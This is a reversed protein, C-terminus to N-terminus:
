RRMRSDLPHNGVIKWEGTVDKARKGPGPDSGPEAALPTLEAVYRARPKRGKYQMWDELLRFRRRQEPVFVRDGKQLVLEHAGTWGFWPYCATHAPIWHGQGKTDQLYFEAWNHNPVWVLRAPIGVSRCLAVFVAAMEECDGRRDRLAAAVSTYSGMLPRIHQPVWRSFALAQDWPHKAGQTLEASLDHVAKLSTQIGPSDQLYLKRIDDPPKQRAPFGDREFGQYQKCLTLRYRAIASITQGKVIGEASLLLQGAGPALERVAAECGDAAIELEDVKQEPHEAPVPTSAMILTAPGAGELEVGIKLEFPRPELYGTANKPPETWIWHGDGVVPIVSYAPPPDDSESDPWLAPLKALGAVSGAAATLRLFDRRNM